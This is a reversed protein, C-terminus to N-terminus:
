HLEGGNEALEPSKAAQLWDAKALSKRVPRAHSIKLRQTKSRSSFVFLFIRLRDLALLSATGKSRNFVLLLTGWAEHRLLLEASYGDKDFKASPGSSSYGQQVEQCLYPLPDGLHPLPRWVRYKFSSKVDGM